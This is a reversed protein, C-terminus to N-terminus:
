APCSLQSSSQSQQFVSLLRVTGADNAAHSVEIINGERDVFVPCNGDEDQSDVSCNDADLSKEVPAPSRVRVTTQKSPTPSCSLMSLTPESWVTPTLQQQVEVQCKCETM